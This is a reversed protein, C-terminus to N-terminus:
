PADDEEVTSAPNNGGLILLMVSGGGLFIISQAADQFFLTYLGFPIFFVGLFQWFRAIKSSGM